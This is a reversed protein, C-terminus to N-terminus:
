ESAMKRRELFNLKKFWRRNKLEIFLWGSCWGIIAGFIVDSAYHVGLYIRSFGILLAIIIWAPVLRRFAKGM